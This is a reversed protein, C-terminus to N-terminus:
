GLQIHIHDDELIVTYEKGLAWAIKNRWSIMEKTSLDYTRLDVAEGTYHKSGVMHEGDTVSTIVTNGKPRCSEAVIIALIIESKISKVQVGSKISLM